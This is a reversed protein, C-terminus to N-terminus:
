TDPKHNARARQQLEDMAESWRDFAEEDMCDPRQRNLLVEEPSIGLAQMVSDLVDVQEWREGELQILLAAYTASTRMTGVGISHLEFKLDPDVPDQRQGQGDDHAALADDNATKLSKHRSTM